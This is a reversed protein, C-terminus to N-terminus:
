RKFTRPGHRDLERDHMRQIEEQTPDCIFSRGYRDAVTQSVGASLAADIALSVEDFSITEGADEWAKVNVENKLREAESVVRRTKM